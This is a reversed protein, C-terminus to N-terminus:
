FQIRLGAEGTQATWNGALNASYSAHFSLNGSRASLGASVEAMNGAPADHPSAFGTGDPATVEVPEGRDGVDASYGLMADPTITFGTGTAFDESVELTAYPQVSTYDSAAARVAFAALAGSAREAFGNAAVTAFRIGVAPDLNIGNVEVGIDAQVGGQYVGSGNSAGLEGIGTQRTSTNSAIGYLFDAAITFPGLPQSGYLGVRTTDLSGKGGGGDHLWTEDYGVALGLRTGAADVPADVGALFGASAADFGDADGSGIQDSRTGTAQVWGGAACFATGLATALRGATSVGPTTNGPAVRAEAACAASDAGAQAGEAAKGLLAENAAQADQAAQQDADAFVAIDAPAVVVAAPLVVAVAGGGSGGGGSGSGGGGGGGGGGAALDLHAADEVGTTSHTLAAPVAGGYSVSAFQGSVGGSAVLFPYSGAHYTGPAFSYDLAGALVASGSVIFQSSQTPTVAVLLTGGAAQQFDGTLTLPTGVVGPQFVGDNVVSAITWSGTAGWDAGPAV